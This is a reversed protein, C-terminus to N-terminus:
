LPVAGSCIATIILWAAGRPSRDSRIRSARNRATHRDGDAREACLGSESRGLLLRCESRRDHLAPSDRRRQHARLLAHLARRVPKRVYLIGITRNPWSAASRRRTKIGAQRARPGASARWTAEVAM